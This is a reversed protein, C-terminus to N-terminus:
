PWTGSLGVMGGGPVVAASPQVKSPADGPLLFMVAGTVLGAGALGFAVRSLLQARRGSSAVGEPDRIPVDTGGRDLTDFKDGAQLYFLTGAGALAVGGVAPLWAWRRLPHARGEARTPVDAVVEPPRTAVPPPTVAPPPKSPPPKASPPTVGPPPVDQMPPMPPAGRLATRTRPVVVDLSQTLAELLQDERVGPILHETILTGDTASYMRAGARYGSLFQGLEAVLVVEAKGAKGLARICTPETRNCRLLARRRSSPLRRTVDEVRIVVLGRAQLQQAVHEQAFEIVHSPAGAADPPAVLVTIPAQSSAAPTALLLAALLSTWVIVSEGQSASTALSAIVAVEEPAPRQEM